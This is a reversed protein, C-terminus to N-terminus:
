LAPGSREQGFHWSISRDRIIGTVPKGLRRELVPRWPVLTFERGNEILAHRGSIMDVSRAYRGEVTRGSRPEQFPLGLDASLKAAVQRLERQRLTDILDHSYVTRGAQQEALGQGILWQTRKERADLLEQGFGSCRIPEAPRELQLRDLWTSAEVEILTDLPHSSLVTTAVPRDVLRAREYAMVTDLHDPGIVWSGGASREVAGTARHIAELRRVHTRVFDETAAPDHRLHRGIDYTGSNRAAVEAITLDSPRLTAQLPAIEVITGPALRPLDEGKGITVYHTRGDTADVILYHRDRFEDALGHAVVRGVLPRADNGGPDYINRESPAREIRSAGIERQMTRIIDGREGLMTLTQQLGDALRWRGSGLHEALGLRSLKQLRGVQIAHDFPTRGTPSALRHQDCARLLQRDISTLREQEVEARLRTEIERDSRPGLDLSVVEAARERMGRALYDRAIVLDKDRDDKGRLLIHTHPHGTNFHDVAIWDLHTGLDEEMARMLQRTLPKLDPYASGDEASVIFRFQHRDGASREIFPRGEVHDQDPGYLGARGGDRTTGDRKLYGLHARSNALGKGALRVLRTKIVVRRQRLFAYRDRSALVSAVGAGRGIRAGSFPSLGKGPGGAGRALNTAAIVRSLYRRSKKAGRTGIRGLHPEFDEDDFM